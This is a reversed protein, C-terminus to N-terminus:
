AHEAELKESTGHTIGHQDNFINNGQAVGDTFFTIQYFDGCQFFEARLINLGDLILFLGILIFTIGDRNKDQLKIGVIFGCQL